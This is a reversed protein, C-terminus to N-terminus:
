SVTFIYAGALTDTNITNGSLGHTEAVIDFNDIAPSLISGLKLEVNGPPGASILRDLLSQATTGSGVYNIFSATYATAEGDGGLLDRLDRAWPPLAARFRDRFRPSKTATPMM